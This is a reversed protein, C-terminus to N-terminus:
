NPDIRTVEVYLENVQQALKAVESPKMELVVDPDPADSFWGAAIASRVTLGNDRNKGQWRKEGQASWFHEEFAELHRQRLDKTLKM